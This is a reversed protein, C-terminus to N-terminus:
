RVRDIEIGIDRGKIKRNMILDPGVKADRNAVRRLREYKKRGSRSLIGM